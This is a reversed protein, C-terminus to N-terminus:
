LLGRRMLEERLEIIRRPHNFFARTRKWAGAYLTLLTQDKLKSM